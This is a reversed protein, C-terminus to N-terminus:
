IHSALKGGRLPALNNKKRYSRGCGDHQAAKAEFLDQAEAYLADDMLDSDLALAKLTEEAAAKERRKQASEQTRAKALQARSAEPSDPLFQANFVCISREWETTLGVFAAARLREAALEVLWGERAQWARVDASRREIFAGWGPPPATANSGTRTAEKRPWLQRVEGLGRTLAADTCGDIPARGGPWAEPADMLRHEAKSSVGSLLRTQISCGHLAYFATRADRPLRSQLEKVLPHNGFTIDHLNYLLGSVLRSFPARLMVAVNAVEFRPLPHPPAGQCGSDTGNAYETGAGWPRGSLWQRSVTSVNHPLGIDSDVTFYPSVACRDRLVLDLQSAAKSNNLACTSTSSWTPHKKNISHYLRAPLMGSDTYLARLARPCAAAVLTALFTSGCKPVHLWYFQPRSPPAHFYDVASGATTYHDSSCGRVSRNGGRREKDSKCLHHVASYSGNSVQATFYIGRMSAARSAHCPWAGAKALIPGPQCQDTLVKSKLTGKFARPGTTHSVCREGSCAKAAGGGGALLAAQEKILHGARALHEAMIPHLPAFPLFTLPWSSHPMNVAVASANRPLLERLARKPELDSDAYVGGLQYLLHCRCLDAHHAGKKVSKYVANEGPSGFRSIFDVCDREAFLHYHYDWNIEWWLRMFEGDLALQEEPTRSLQFIQPPILSTSIVEHTSARPPRYTHIGTVSASEIAAARWRRLWEQPAERLSPRKANSAKAAYPSSRGAVKSALAMLGCIAFFLAPRKMM